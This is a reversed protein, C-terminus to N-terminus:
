RQEAYILRRERMLSEVLWPFRTITNNQELTQTTILDVPKGISERLDEYLGGMAWGHALEDTRQLLIDVDSEETADGRAYSGFVYVAPINYKKAIPAIREKLEDLSYVM